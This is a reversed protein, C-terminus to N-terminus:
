LGCESNIQAALEEVFAAADHFDEFTEILVGDNVKVTIREDDKDDIWIVWIRAPDIYSGEAAKMLM